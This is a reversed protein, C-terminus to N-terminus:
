MCTYRLHNTVLLGAADPLAGQQERPADRL